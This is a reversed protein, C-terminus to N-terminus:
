KSNHITFQSNINTYYPWPIEGKGERIFSNTWEPMPPKNDNNIMEQWAEDTLREESIFEHYSFVAGRTLYM